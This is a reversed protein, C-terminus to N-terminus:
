TNQSSLRKDRKPLQFLAAGCLQYLLRAGVNGDWEGSTAPAVENVDFGVIHRGSKALVNLLYRIRAYSLGEPVPTGTNPCFLPSLGDVDMSIYVKEPLQECIRLCCQHWNEGRFIADHLQPAFFTCIRPDNQIVQFEELCLDRIGVQVLKAPAAPLSMVNHMISAHSYTFDQYAVRLDAHADIHLIGMDHHHECLAKILGYPTSHDGGLVAPIQQCAIIELSQTYIDLHLQACAHNIEEIQAIDQKNLAIGNTRKTQLALVMNRLYENRSYLHQPIAKLHIGQTYPTGYVLDFLDLQPSAELIHQPGLSAGGGYSTTVDWPVPIIIIQASQAQSAIGFLGLEHSQTEM